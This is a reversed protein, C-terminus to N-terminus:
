RTKHNRQVTVRRKKRKANMVYIMVQGVTEKLIIRHPGTVVIGVGIGRIVIGEKVTNRWVRNVEKKGSLVKQFEKRVEERSNPNTKADEIKTEIQHFWRYM